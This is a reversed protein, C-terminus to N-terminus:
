QTTNNKTKDQQMFAFVVCYLLIIKPTKVDDVVSLKTALYKRSPKDGEQRLGTSFIVM